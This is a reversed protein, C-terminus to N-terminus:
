GRRLICRKLLRKVKYVRFQNFKKRFDQTPFRKELEEYKGERALKLVEDRDEADASAKIASPNEKVADDMTVELVKFSGELSKLMEGGADTNVMVMSTGKDDDMEPHSNWIGWFDGLTMDSSRNNGKFPCSSCGNSLIHNGVFLKMFLDDSNVAAYRKVANYKFVVSYQYGSWGTIKSRLNISVPLSGNNDKMARYKVYQKWAEPDPSGHCVLDVCFLKSYDKNLYKKLGYVQCPTGSFLVHKDSELDEKVQQYIGGIRSKAYKAGQLLKIDSSDTIRIHQVEYQQGYAAGYVAGKKNLVYKALEPFVGGSTSNKRTRDDKSIMAYYKSTGM